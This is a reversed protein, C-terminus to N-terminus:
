PIIWNYANICDEILPLTDMYKKCRDEYYEHIIIEVSDQVPRPSSDRSIYIRKQIKYPLKKIDCGKIINIRNVYKYNLEPFYKKLIMEKKDPKLTISIEGSLTASPTPLFWCIVKLEDM